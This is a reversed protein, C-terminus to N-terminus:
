NSRIRSHVGLPPQGHSGAVAHGCCHADEGSACRHLACRDLLLEGGHAPAGLSSRWSPKAGPPSPSLVFRHSKIRRLSRRLDFVLNSTGPRADRAPLWSTGSTMRWRWRPSPTSCFNPTRSSGPGPSPPRWCRPPSVAASQRTKSASCAKERATALVGARRDPRGSVHSGTGQNGGSINSTNGVVRGRTTRCEPSYTLCTLVTERRAVQPREQHRAPRARFRRRHGRFIEVRAGALGKREVSGRQHPGLWAGSSSVRKGPRVRACISM